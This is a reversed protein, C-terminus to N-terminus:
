FFVPCFCVEFSSSLQRAVGFSSYLQRLCTRFLLVIFSSKAGLPVISNGQLLKQAAASNCSLWKSTAVCNTAQPLKASKSNSSAARACFVALCMSQCVLSLAALGPAGWHQEHQGFTQSLSGVLCFPM